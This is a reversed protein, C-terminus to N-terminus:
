NLTTRTYCCRSVWLESAQDRLSICGTAPRPLGPKLSPIPRLMRSRSFKPAQSLPWAVRRVTSKTLLADFHQGGEGSKFRRLFLPVLLSATVVVAEEEEEDEVSIEEDEVSIEEVEGSIEEDEGSIEEDEGSIEEDEGSIEEDEEKIFLLDACIKLHSVSASFFRCTYANMSIKWLIHSHRSKKLFFFFFILDLM